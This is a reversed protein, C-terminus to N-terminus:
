VLGILFFTYRQAQFSRYMAVGSEALGLEAESVRNPLHPEVPASYVSSELVEVPNRIDRDTMSYQCELRTKRRSLYLPDNNRVTIAVPPLGSSEPGGM